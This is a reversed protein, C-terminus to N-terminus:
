EGGEILVQCLSHSFPPQPICICQQTKATSTYATQLLWGSCCRSITQFCTQAAPLTTCSVDYLWKPENQVCFVLERFCKHKQCWKYWLVILLLHTQLTNLCENTMRWKNNIPLKRNLVPHPVAKCFHECGTHSIRVQTEETHSGQLRCSLSLKQLIWM